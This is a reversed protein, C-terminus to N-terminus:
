LGDLDLGDGSDDDDDDMGGGGGGGGGGGSDATDFEEVGDDGGGTASGSPDHLQPRARRDRYANWEGGGSANDDVGWEGEIYHVGDEGITYRFYGRGRTITPRGPVLERSETWEFRLVNGHVTGQIRGTREDKEYEGVVNNGTQVIQMTGYQPSHWVGTYSGGSPMPGEPVNVGGGGCGPFLGGMLLGMTLGIVSAETRGM